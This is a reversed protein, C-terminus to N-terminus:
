SVLDGPMQVLFLQSTEDGYSPMMITILSRRMPTAPYIKPVFYYESGGYDDYTIRHHYYM